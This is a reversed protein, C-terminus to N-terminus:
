RSPCHVTFLYSGIADTVKKLTEFNGPDCNKKCWPDTHGKMYMKDVVIEVTALKDARIYNLSIFKKCLAAFSM